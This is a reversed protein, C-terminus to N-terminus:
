KNRNKKICNSALLSNGECLQLYIVSILSMISVVCDFWFSLVIITMGVTHNRGRSQNKPNWNKCDVSAQLDHDSASCRPEQISQTSEASRRRPLQHRHNVVHDWRRRDVVTTSSWLGFAEQQLKYPDLLRSPWLFSLSLFVHYPMRLMSFWASTFVDLHLRVVDWM